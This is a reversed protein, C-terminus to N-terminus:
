VLLAIPLAPSLPPSPCMADHRPDVMGRRGANSFSKFSHFGEWGSVRGGGGRGRADQNAPWPSGHFKRSTLASSHSWPTTGLAGPVRAGPEGPAVRGRPAWRRFAPEFPLFLDKNGNSGM